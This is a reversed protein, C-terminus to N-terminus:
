YITLYVLGLFVVRPSIKILIAALLLAAFVALAVMAQSSFAGLLVGFGWFGLVGTIILKVFKIKIFALHLMLFLM